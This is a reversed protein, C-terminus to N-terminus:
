SPTLRVKRSYISACGGCFFLFLSNSLYSSVRRHCSFKIKDCLQILLCLLAHGLRLFPLPKQRNGAAIVLKREILLEKQIGLARIGGRYQLYLSPIFVKPAPYVTSCRTDRDKVLVAWTAGTQFVIKINGVGM